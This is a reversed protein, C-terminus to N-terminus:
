FSLNLWDIEGLMIRIKKIDFLEFITGSGCSNNRMWLPEFLRPVLWIWWAKYLHVASLPDVLEEFCSFL